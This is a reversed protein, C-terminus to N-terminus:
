ETHACRAHYDYIITNFQYRAKYAQRSASYYTLTFRQRAHSCANAVALLLLLRTHTISSFARQPLATVRSDSSLVTHARCTAARSVDFRPSIM